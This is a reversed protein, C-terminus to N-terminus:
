EPKSVRTSSKIELDRLLRYLNNPHIQLLRAAKASDGQAQELAERVIQQKAKRVAEQYNIAPVAQRPTRALVPEPLDEPMVQDTWGFVVAHEIANELERVNGPWDYARLYAMAEPSIRTVVRKNKESSLHLFRGALLPIDDRRERLPPMQVSVVNLRYYLDERFQQNRVAEELQRNTAAMIRINVQIKRTGGLREFAREQLVRLLMAQPGAALEDVEDLFVTGGDALELKGKKQHAAGTFAGKEHGFLESELLDGKLLACNIAEFPQDARSSNRHIARAALEKGTGTEGRILVTADTPAIRAIRQYVEQMRASQGVMEHRLHVEERMRRNEAQLQELKRSSDLVLAVYPSLAIVFELDHDTLAPPVIEGGRELYLVGCVADRILLPVALISTRRTDQDLPVVASGNELQFNALLPTRQQFAQDVIERRVFPAPCLGKQQNWGYVAWEGPQLLFVAARDAQVAHGLAELIKGALPEIRSDASHLLKGIETVVARDRSPTSFPAGAKSSKKDEPGLPQILVRAATEQDSVPLPWAPPPTSDERFEFVTDGVGLQDGTQLFREQVAEGNVYTGNHSGLDKIKYRGAEWQIVCHFRSVSLDGICLHNSPQRGLTVEEQVLRFLAGQLPGSIARIVAPVASKRRCIRRTYCTSPQLPLKFGINRNTAHPIPEDAMKTFAPETKGDRFVDLSYLADGTGSWRSTKGSQKM